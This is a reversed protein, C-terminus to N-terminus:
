AAPDAVRGNSTADREIGRVGSPQGLRDLAEPLRSDLTCRSTQRHAGGGDLVGALGDATETGVAQVPDDLVLFGFPNGAALTRPLCIFLELAQFEGQSLLGP